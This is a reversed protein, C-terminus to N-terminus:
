KNKRRHDRFTGFLKDAWFSFIGYNIQMNVHHLYHLYSWKRYITYIVPIKGLWHNKIHFADHLYNHALGTLIQVSWIILVLYCSILGLFYLILPLIVLPLAAIIFFKPAADKGAHRYTSSVYDHAPYLRQHHTMHAQHAEKMWTQHLAWHFGYGFLLTTIYSIIITLVILM